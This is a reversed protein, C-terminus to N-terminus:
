FGGGQAERAVSSRWSSAREAHEDRSGSFGPALVLLERLHARVFGVRVRARRLDIGTSEAVCAVASAFPQPSRGTGWSRGHPLATREILVGILTRLRPEGGTALLVRGHDKALSVGSSGPDIAGLNKKKKSDRTSRSRDLGGASRRSKTWASSGSRCCRASALWGRRRCRTASACLDSDLVSRPDRNLWRSSAPSFGQEANFRRIRSALHSGVHRSPPRGQARQARDMLAHKPRRAHYRGARGYNVTTSAGPRNHKPRRERFRLRPSTGRSRAGAWQGGGRCRGLDLGVGSARSNRLAFGGRNRALTSM